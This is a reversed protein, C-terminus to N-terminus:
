LVSKCHYLATVFVVTYGMIPLHSDWYVGRSDREEKVPMESAVTVLWVSHETSSNCILLIGLGQRGPANLECLLVEPSVIHFMATM